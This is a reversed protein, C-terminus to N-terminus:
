GADREFIAGKRDSNVIIINPEPNAFM